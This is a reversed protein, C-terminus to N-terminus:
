PSHPSAVDDLDQDLEALDDGGLGAGGGLENAHERAETECQANGNCGALENEYNKVIVDKTLSKANVNSESSSNGFGNSNSGTDDSSKSNSSSKSAGDDSKAGTQGATKGGDKKGDGKSEKESKSQKTSKSPDTKGKEDAPQDTATQKSEGGETPAANDGAAQGKDEAPESNKTTEDTSKEQEAKPAEAKEAAIVPHVAAFALSLFILKFLKIMM